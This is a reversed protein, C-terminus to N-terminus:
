CTLSFVVLVLRASKTDVVGRSIIDLFGTSFEQRLFGTSSIRCFFDQRLFGTSSIRDSFDQGLGTTDTDRHMRYEVLEFFEM